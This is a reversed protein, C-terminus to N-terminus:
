DSNTRYIRDADLFADAQLQVAHEMNVAPAFVPQHSWRGVEGGVGHQEALLVEKHLFVSANGTSGHNQIWTGTEDHSLVGKGAVVEADTGAVVHSYLPHPLVVDSVLHFVCQVFRVMEVLVDDDILVYPHADIHRQKVSYM